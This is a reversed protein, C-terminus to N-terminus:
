EPVSMDPINPVQLMLEQWEKMTKKLNEEDHELDAKVIKMESILKSREEPTKAAAISESAANQEARRKESSTMLARRRDDVAILRNVDFDIHKKAAARAVIDKNERIFRIDLM